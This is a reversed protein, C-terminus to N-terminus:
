SKNRRRRAAILGLGAVLAVAADTNVPASGLPTAACSADASAEAEAHVEIKFECDSVDTIDIFQGDCFLAGSPEQCKATCGGQLDATCSGTCMVNCDLNAQATCSGECSAKCKADCTAEPPTGECHGSCQGSCSSECTAECQAQDANASCDGSCSAKCDANCSGECDFSGPDVTCKGSCDAECSGSCQADFSANCTGSCKATCSATMTIPTCRAECGGKVVFECSSTSSIVVDGERTHCVAGALANSASLIPVAMVVAGALLHAFSRRM